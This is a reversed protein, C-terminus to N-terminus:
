GIIRSVWGQVIGPVKKLMAIGIIYGTAATLFIVIAGMYDKLETEIASLATTIYGTLTGASASTPVLIVLACVAFIATYLYVNGFKDLFTKM